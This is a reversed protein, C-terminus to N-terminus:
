PCALEQEKNPSHERSLYIHKIAPISGKIQAEFCEMSQQATDAATGQCFTLRATALVENPGFHITAIYGAKEIAHGRLLIDRIRRVMAPSAAEGILLSKTERALAMATVALVSGILISAAADAWALDLYQVAALGAFAIVLGILAASDEFLVTFITPDKSAHVADFLARRGRTKNFERFAVTWSIGEFIASVSLVIYNTTFSTVPHPKILKEIGEYFSMGAGLGFILLAVVFSWFYLELGHGFPHQDDPPRKARAMGLIMLGQNGTDVTSHIAESVMASSGTLFGAAFKTAAILLNGALAAYVVTKSESKAPV